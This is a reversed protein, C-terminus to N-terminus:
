KEQKLRYNVGASFENGMAWFCNTYQFFATYSKYNYHTNLGFTLIIDNENIPQTFGYSADFGASGKKLKFDSGFIYSINYALKSSSIGTMLEKKAAIKRFNTFDGNEYFLTGKVGVIRIDIISLPINLNIESSVGAGYYSKKGSFEKIELVKYSGFYGYGGYSFNYNRNTQTQSWFLQGFYNKEGSHNFASDQSQSFKGGIYTSTKSSDTYIPKTFLIPDVGANGYAYYPYCGQFIISIICGCSIKLLLKFNKM